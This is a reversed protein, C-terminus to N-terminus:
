LLGATAFSFTNTGGVIVHDVVKIDLLGLAQRLNITITKDAQSPEIKGSPHNHALIVGAANIQLARKAIERPYVSSANITGSSMREDEILFNQSNLWLCHFHEVEELALSLKLYNAVEEFSQMPQTCLKFRNKLIALAQNIVDKETVYVPTDQSAVKM